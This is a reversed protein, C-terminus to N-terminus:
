NTSKSKKLIVAVIAGVIFVGGIILVATMAGPGSEEEAVVEEASLTTMESATLVAVPCLHPFNVTISGDANVTIDDTAIFDWAGTEKNYVTVIITDGPNYNGDLTVKLKQGNSFDLDQGVSLDFIDQVVISGADLDPFNDALFNELDQSYQSNADMLQAKAENYVAKEEETMKSEDGDAVIKIDEAKITVTNGNEDTFTADGVVSPGATGAVSPTVTAFVQASTLMMLIASLAFVLKWNRKSKM